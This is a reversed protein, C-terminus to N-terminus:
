AEALQSEVLRGVLDDFGVTNTWGLDRAAKAPNGCPAAQEVPQVLGPDYDVHRTWDLGVAGFAREVFDRVTHLHGTALIYDGLEDRQLMRWMGEVYDPAWGWDRRGDLRGLVLRQQSGRKIRAAAAAVKMTVFTDPRRPSEHNYLIASCMPLRYATRYIRVLQQAMAKAAGYPTNADLPTEEDQPSRLASGFVEGSSAYLFRPPEPFDRLIELLRLTAMGVSEVAAEPLELSARPNTGGALHYFETPRAKLVIRRLHTTDEFSGTHLFLTRGLVAPDRVYARLNGQALSEPRRVLGHVIYGKGLLLETLYSGDQGTIGTIFAIPAAM